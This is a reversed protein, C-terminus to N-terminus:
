RRRVLREDLAQLLEGVVFIGGAPRDHTIGGNERQRLSDLLRAARARVLHRLGHEPEAEVRRDALEGEVFLGMLGFHALEPPLHDLVVTIGEGDHLIGFVERLYRVRVSPRGGFGSECWPRADRERENPSPPASPFATSRVMTRQRASTPFLFKAPM